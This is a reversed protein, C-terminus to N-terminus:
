LDEDMDELAKKLRRFGEETDMLTTMLLCYNGAAMEPQLHHRRRLIDYIQKGTRGECAICLKTPDYGYVAGKGIFKTGFIKVKKFKCARIDELFRELSEFRKQGEKEIIELCRDIGAMFVYSPSSTQYISYYTEFWFKDVLKGQLLAMATQTFSPLTKHLSAIVIDAGEAAASKAHYKESFNDYLGFHAGHASDVILPIDYKHCVKAIARVDSVVGEYTPSTIFVAKAKRNEIIAKEVESPSIGSNIGYPELQDPYLYAVELENLFVANYASKHANRAMIIQDGKKVVASIATLIGCSSGNVLIYAKESHFIKAMKKELEAIIGEPHHMNDFNDIETIDLGIAGDLDCGLPQRKHGPMHFPYYDSESLEKLENYM